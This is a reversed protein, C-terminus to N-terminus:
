KKPPHELEEIKKKVYEAQKKIGIKSYIKYSKKYYEGAQSKKGQSKYLDAM